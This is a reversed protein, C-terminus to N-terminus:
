TSRYGDMKYELCKGDPFKALKGLVSNSLPRAEGSLGNDTLTLCPVATQSSNVTLRLVNGSLTLVAM